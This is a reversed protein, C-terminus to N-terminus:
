VILTVRPPLQAHRRPAPRRDAPSELPTSTWAQALSAASLNPRDLLADLSPLPRAALSPGIAAQPPASIPAILTWHLLALTLVLSFSAGALLPRAPEWLRIWWPRADGLGVLVRADFDPSPEPVPLARLTERLIDDSDRM